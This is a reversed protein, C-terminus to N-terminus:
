SKSSISLLNNKGTNFNGIVCNNNPTSAGPVADRMGLILPSAQIAMVRFSCVVTGAPTDHQRLEYTGSTLADFHVNKGYAIGTIAHQNQSIFYGMGPAVNEFGVYITLQPDTEAAFVNFSTVLGFMLAILTLQKKM